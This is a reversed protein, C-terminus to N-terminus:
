WERSTVLVSSTITRIPCRKGRASNCGLHAARANSRMLALMPWDDVPLVHDLSWSMTNIRRTIPDRHPLARDIPDGCLWCMGEEARVQAALKQYARTSRIGPM